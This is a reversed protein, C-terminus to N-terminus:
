GADVEKARLRAAEEAGYRTLWAISSATDLMRDQLDPNRYDETASLQTYKAFVALNVVIPENGDFLLDSLQFGTAERCGFSHYTGPEANPQGSYLFRLEDGVCVCVHAIIGRPNTIDRQAPSQEQYIQFGGSVELLGDKLRTQIDWFNVFTGGCPLPCTIGPRHQRQLRYEVGNWKHIECQEDGNYPHKGVLQNMPDEPKNWQTATWAGTFFGATVALGVLLMIRGSSIAPSPPPLALPALRHRLERIDTLRKDVSPHCLANILERLAGLHPEPPMGRKEDGASDLDAPWDPFDAAAQGTTMVYMLKGLAYLDDPRRPTPVPPMYDLTGIAETSDDSATLGMDALKLVDDAFLCNAPKVDSHHLGAKHMHDIADLLASAHEVVQWVPMRGKRRLLTALTLPEYDHPHHPQSGGAHDAIEM